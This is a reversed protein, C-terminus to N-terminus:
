QMKQICINTFLYIIPFGIRDCLFHAFIKIAVLCSTFSSDFSIINYFYIVSVSEGNKIGSHCKFISLIENIKIIICTYNKIPISKYPVLQQRSVESFRMIFNTQHLFKTFPYKIGIYQNNILMSLHKLLSLVDYM